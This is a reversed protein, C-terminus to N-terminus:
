VVFHTSLDELRDQTLDCIIFEADQIGTRIGKRVYGSGLHEGVRMAQLGVDACRIKMAAYVEEMGDGTFAMMIFVTHSTFHLQSSPPM